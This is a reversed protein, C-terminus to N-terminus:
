IEPQRRIKIVVLLHWEIYKNERRKSYMYWDIVTSTCYTEDQM